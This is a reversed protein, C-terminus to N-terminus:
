IPNGEFDYIKDIAIQRYRETKIARRACDWILDIPPRDPEKKKRRKVEKLILKTAERPQYCFSASFLLEGGSPILRAELLDGKELGALQRRETIDHEKGSFVDKLRVMGKAIKRVEFLGHITETFGRYQALEDASGSVQEAFEQAPTKHSVPSPRDFMYWDLFSAMRMEFVRDEDFVEGTLQFYEAKASMLDPKRPEASAYEILKDLYPQFRQPAPEQSPSPAEPIPAESDM